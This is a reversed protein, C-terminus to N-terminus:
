RSEGEGSEGCAALYERASDAVKGAERAIEGYLWAGIQTTAAAPLHEALAALHLLRAQLQEWTDL